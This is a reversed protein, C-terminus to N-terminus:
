PSRPGYAKSFYHFTTKYFYVNLFVDLHLGCMDQQFSKM